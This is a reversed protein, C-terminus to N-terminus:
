GHGVCFCLSSGNNVIQTLTQLLCLQSGLFGLLLISDGLGTEVICVLLVVVNFLRNMLLLLTQFLQLILLLFANALAPLKFGDVFGLASLRHFLLFLQLDTFFFKALCDLSELLRHSLFLQTTLVLSPLANGSCTHQAVGQNKWTM